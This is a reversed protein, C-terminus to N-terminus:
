RHEAAIPATPAGRTCFQEKFTTEEEALQELIMACQADMDADRLKRYRRINEENFFRDM